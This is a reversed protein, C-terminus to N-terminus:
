CKSRDLLVMNTTMALSKKLSKKLHYVFWDTEYIANAFTGFFLYSQNAFTGFFLYSQITFLQILIKQASFFIQIKSLKFIHLNCNRPYLISFQWRAGRKYPWWQCYCVM